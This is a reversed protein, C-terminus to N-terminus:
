PISSFIDFIGVIDLFTLIIGGWCFVAFPYIIWRSDIRDLRLFMGVRYIVYCVGCTILFGLGYENDCPIDYRGCVEWPNM